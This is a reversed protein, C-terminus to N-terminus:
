DANIIQIIGGGELFNRHFWEREGRMEAGM